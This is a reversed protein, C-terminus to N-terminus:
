QYGVGAKATARNSEGTHGALAREFQDLVEDLASDLHAQKLVSDGGRLMELWATRALEVIYAGTFGDTYRVASDLSGNFTSFRNLSRRLLERRAVTDPPRVHIVRDFRGPRSTLAPDLKGVHNTTALVIVNGSSEVGDMLDLLQGLVPHQSVERNLGGIADLDELVLLADTRKAMDFITRLGDKQIRTNSVLIVTQDPMVKLLHRIASTKGCGPPGALLIGRSPNEGIAQIQDMLPRYAIIDRVLCRNVEPSLIAESDALDERNLINFHGDMVAGKLVTEYPLNCFLSMLIKTVDVDEECTAIDLTGDGDSDIGFRLEFPTKEYTALIVAMPIFTWKDPKGVSIEAVKPAVMKRDGGTYATTSTWEFDESNRIHYEACAKTLNGIMSNLFFKSTRHVKKSGLHNARNIERLTSSPTDTMMAEMAGINAEHWKQLDLNATLSISEGGFNGQLEIDLKTTTKKQTKSMTKVKTKHQTCQM